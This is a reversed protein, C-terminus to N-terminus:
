RDHHPPRDELFRRDDDAEADALDDGWGVSREDDTVDPLTPAEDDPPESTV